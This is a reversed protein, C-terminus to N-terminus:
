YEECQSRSGCISSEGVSAMLLQINSTHVPIKDCHRDAQDISTRVTLCETIKLINVTFLNEDTFLIFRGHSSLYKEAVTKLPQTQKMGSQLMATKKAFGKVLSAISTHDFIYNIRQRFNVALDAV